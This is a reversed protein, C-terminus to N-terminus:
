ATREAAGVVHEGGLLEARVAVADDGRRDDRHIRGLFRDLLQLEGRLLEAVADDHHAAEDATRNGREDLLMGLRGLEDLPVVHDADVALVVVIRHPRLAALQVDRGAKAEAPSAIALASNKPPM